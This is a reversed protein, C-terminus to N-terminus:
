PAQYGNVHSSRRFVRRLLARSIGGAATGTMAGLSLKVSESLPDNAELLMTLREALAQITSIEM